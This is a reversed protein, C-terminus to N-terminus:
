GECFHDGRGCAVKCAHSLLGILSLLERKKCSKKERWSGLTERLRQLKDRPLRIELAISDLEIGIFSLITTPGEDKEPKVPLGVRDCASHMIVANEHCEFSDPDGITIFDDIYHAVWQVGMREMIWQLADALASFIIPASRLGFPLTADVYTAGRWQMGLLVRDSPHIPINRYAQRIDMKAMM